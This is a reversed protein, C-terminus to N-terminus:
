SSPSASPTGSQEFVSYFKAAQGASYPATEGCLLVEGSRSALLVQGYDLKAAALAQELDVPTTSTVRVLDAPGGRFWHQATFNAVGASNFQFTGLVATTARNLRAGTLEPCDDPTQASVPAIRMTVATVPPAERSMAARVSPVLLALIALAAAILAILLLSVSNHRAAPSTM